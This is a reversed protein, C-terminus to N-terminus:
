TLQYDLVYPSFAQPCVHRAELTATVIRSFDASVLGTSESLVTRQRGRTYPVVYVNGAQEFDTGLLLKGFDNYRTFSEEDIQTDGACVIHGYSPAESVVLDDVDLIVWLCADDENIVALGCGESTSNDGAYIGEIAAEGATVTGSLLADGASFSHAAPPSVRGIVLSHSLSLSLSHVPAGSECFETTDTPTYLTGTAANVDSTLTLFVPVSTLSDATLGCAGTDSNGMAMMGGLSTVLVSCEDSCHVSSVVTPTACTDPVTLLTPTSIYGSSLGLGNRGDDATGWAYVAGSATSALCHSPGASVDVVGSLGPVLTPALAYGSLTGLGTAGHSNDGCSYVSGTELLLLTAEISSSISVVRTGISTVETFTLPDTATGDLCNLGSTSVGAAYVTGSVGVLFSVDHGAVARLIPEETEILTPALISDATEGDRRVEGWLYVSGSVTTALAHRYVVSVDVVREPIGPVATFASLSTTDTDSYDVGTLGYSTSGVVLLNGSRTWVFSVNDGAEVGVVKGLDAPSPAFVGTDDALSIGTSSLYPTDDVSLTSAHTVGSDYGHGTAYHANDGYSFPLTNSTVCSPWSKVGMDLMTEREREGGRRVQLAERERGGECGGSVSDIDRERGEEQSIGDM